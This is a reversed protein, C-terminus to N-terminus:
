AVDNEEVPEGFTEVLVRAPIVVRRGLRVAEIDGRRIMKWLVDDSVGLMPAAEAVSYAFRTM